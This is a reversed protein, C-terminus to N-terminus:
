KKNEIIKNIEIQLNISDIVFETYFILHNYTWEGRM